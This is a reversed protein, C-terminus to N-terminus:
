VHQRFVYDVGAMFNSFFGVAGADLVRVSFIKANKAVGFSNGAILSATYTGHGNFDRGQAFAGDSAADFIVGGAKRAISARSVGQQNQFEVHEVFVGSDIVYVNVNGAKNNFTYSNNLTPNRQDIRDLQYPAPTQPSQIPP